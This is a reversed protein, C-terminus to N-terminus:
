KTFKLQNYVLCTPNKAIGVKILYGDMETRLEQWKQNIEVIKSSLINSLHVKKALTNLEKIQDAVLLLQFDFPVYDIPVSSPTSSSTVGAESTKGALVGCTDNQPGPSEGQKSVRENEGIGKTCATQELKKVLSNKPAPAKERRSTVALDNVHVCVTKSLTYIKELENDIEEILDTIKITQFFLLQSLKLKFFVCCCSKQSKRM